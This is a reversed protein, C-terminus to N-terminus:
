KISGFKKFPFLRFNVRGVIDDESFTGLMRSDKSVVRNDGLVFYEGDKTTYTFDVTDTFEYNEEVRKGNIYLQNNNYEITENPLAIIRKIIKDGEKTNDLVVVDFRKVDKINYVFKNILVLQGDELTYDMSAGDVLALTMVFTRLVLAVVVAVVIAEVWDILEKRWGTKWKNVYEETETINELNEENVINNENPNQM